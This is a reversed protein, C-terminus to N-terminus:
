YLFHTFVYKLCFKRINHHFNHHSRSSFRNSLFIINHSYLAWMHCVYKIYSICVYSVHIRVYLHYVYTLLSRKWTKQISEQRVRGRGNCAKSVWYVGILFMFNLKSFFNKVISANCKRNTKKELNIIGIYGFLILQIVVWKLM